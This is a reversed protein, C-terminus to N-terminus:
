SNGLFVAFFICFGGYYSFYSKYVSIEVVGVERDEELMLPEGVEKGIISLISQQSANSKGGKNSANSKKTNSKTNSRMSDKSKISPEVFSEKEIPLKYELLYKSNEDNKQDEDSDSQEPNLIDQAKEGAELRTVFEANNKEEVMSGKANKKCKELIELYIPLNKIHNYHGQAAINGKELIIVQDTFRLCDLNHTVM